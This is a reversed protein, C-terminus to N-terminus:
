HDRKFRFAAIHAALIGKPFDPEDPLGFTKPATPPAEFTGFLADWFVFVEGFNTAHMRALHHQAHINPTSVVKAWWPLPTGARPFDVNLHAGLAGIIMSPVMAGILYAAPQAGLLWAVLVSTSNQMVFTGLLHTQATALWNLHPSAHHVRHFRWTWHFRHDARHIWYQKLDVALLVIACQVLFPVGHVELGWSPSWWRGLGVLLFAALAGLQARLALYIVLRGNYRSLLKEGRVRPVLAEALICLPVLAIFVWDSVSLHIM